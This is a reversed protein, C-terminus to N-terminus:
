RYFPLIGAPLDPTRSLPTASMKRDMRSLPSRILTVPGPDACAAGPRAPVPQRPRAGLRRTRRGLLAVAPTWEARRAHARHWRSRPGALGGHAALRRVVPGARAAGHHRGSPRRGAHVPPIEAPRAPRGGPSPLDARYQTRGMHARGAPRPALSRRSGRPRCGRVARGLFRVPAAVPAGP